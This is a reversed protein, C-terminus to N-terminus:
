QTATESVHKARKKWIYTYLTVYFTTSSKCFVVYQITIFLYILSVAFCLNSSVKNWPFIYHGSNKVVGAYLCAMRGNDGSVFSNHFFPLAVDVHRGGFM